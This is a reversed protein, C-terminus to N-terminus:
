RNCPLTHDTHTRTGVKMSSYAQWLDKQINRLMRTVNPQSEFNSRHGQRLSRAFALLDASMAPFGKKGLYRFNTSLLVQARPYRPYKGLDRLTHADSGHFPHQNDKKPNFHGTQDKEYMCDARRSYRGPEYYIGDKLKDTIQAVYILKNELANSGFGFVWDQPAAASRISPKCIALTLLDDTVCPAGGNDTTLKYVFYKPM